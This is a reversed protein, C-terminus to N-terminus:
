VMTCHLTLVRFGIMALSAKLNLYKCYKPHERPSKSQPLIAIIQTPAVAGEVMIWAGGAPSIHSAQGM